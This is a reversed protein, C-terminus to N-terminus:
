LICFLDVTFSHVTQMVAFPQYGLLVTSAEVTIDVKDVSTTIIVVQFISVLYPERTVHVYNWTLTVAVNTIVECSAIMKWQLHVM